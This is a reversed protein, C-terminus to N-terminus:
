NEDWHCPVGNEKTQLITIPDFNAWFIMGIFWSAVRILNIWKNSPPPHKSVIECTVSTGCRVLSVALHLSNSKINLSAIKQTQHKLLYLTINLLYIM